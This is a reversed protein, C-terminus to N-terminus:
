NENKAGIISILCNHGKTPIMGNLEQLIGKNFVIM